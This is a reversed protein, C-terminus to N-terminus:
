QMLSFQVTVTMIVPVPSGNLTTTSFEWQRAADLAAQDLLPISRLVRADAVKGAEDLVIELIVVGQVRAEQAEPPYVPKVDRIKTPMRINGGVRVAGPLSPPPPTGFRSGSATGGVSTWRQSYGAGSQHGVRSAAEDAQKMLLEREAPDSTFSAKSRLHLSRTRLLLGDDPHTRLAVDLLQLSQDIHSLSEAPNDRIQVGLVHHANAASAVALSSSPDARMWEEAIALVREPDTKPPMEFLNLLTTFLPASTPHYGLADRLVREADAIRGARQYLRALEVSPYFEAPKDAIVAKLEDESRTPQPVVSGGTVFGRGQPQPPQARVPTALVCVAILAASLHRHMHIRM